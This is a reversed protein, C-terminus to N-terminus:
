QPPILACRGELCGCRNVDASACDMVMTCMTDPTKPRSKAKAVCAHAHCPDSVGCDADSSCADTSKVPAPLRCEPPKLSPQSPQNPQGLGPPAGTGVPPSSTAASTVIPGPPLPPQPPPEACSAALALASLSLSALAATSPISIMM